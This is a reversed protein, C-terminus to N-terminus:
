PLLEVAQVGMNPITTTSADSVPQRPLVVRRFSGWLCEKNNTNTCTTTWGGPPAEGFSDRSQSTVRWYYGRPVFAAFSRVEVTTSTSSGGMPVLIPRGAVIADQLRSWLTAGCLSGPAGAYISLSSGAAVTAPTVCDFGSIWRFNLLVDTFGQYTTQGDVGIILRVGNVNVPNVNTCSTTAAGAGDQIFSPADGDITFTRCVPLVIPFLVPARASTGWVAQGCSWLTVGGPDPEDGNLLGAFVPVVALGGTDTETSTTVRVFAHSAAMSRGDPFALARCDMQRETLAACALTWAGSRGCTEEVGSAGDPSNADALQEAFGDAAAATACRPGGLACDRALGTASSDAANGVATRERYLVGTDFSLALLGLLVGTGLLVAFVTMIAGRDDTSAGRDDTRLERM